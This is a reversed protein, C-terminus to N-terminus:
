IKVYEWMFGGTTTRDGKCCSSIVSDHLKLENSADMISNWKKIFDGKKNKQIIPKMQALSQRKRQEPTNKKGKCGKSINNRHDKSLGGWSPNKDGLKSESLKKLWEEDFVRGKHTKSMKKRTADTVISGNRGEGGDTMNVLIGTNIDRRGYKKILSIEKQRAYEWELNESIIEITYGVKNVINHWLQNRGITEYPRTAKGIGIYFITNDDNRIHKYLVLM